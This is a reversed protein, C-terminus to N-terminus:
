DDCPIYQTTFEYDFKDGASLMNINSKQCMESKSLQEDPLGWWPEVCVFNGYQAHSWVALVPPNNLIFHISIRNKRVITIDREPKAFVLADDKFLSKKLEFITKFGVDEVGDILLSQGNVKYKKLFGINDFILFNGSTDTGNETEIGDIIYGAHAGIMFPMAEKGGNEVEYLTVLSNDLLKYRIRLIFKFPYKKLSEENWSLKLTAENQSQSEIEFMSYRALGHIEMSYSTKDVTYKKDKLRGIMPFIVADKSLWSKEDGQWLLEDASGDVNKIVVSDLTGGFPNIKINVLENKLQIM